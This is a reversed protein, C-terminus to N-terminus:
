GLGLFTTVNTSAFMEVETDSFPSEEFIRLYNPYSEVKALNVTFDTGFLTRERIKDALNQDELTEIYRHLNKYFTPEVGSFSVDAYVNPYREILEIVQLFWPDGTFTREFRVKLPSQNYQRGYHALDVKLTPYHELVPVWRQPETYYQALKPAVGRFGQDDCHTVIPLNNEVCYAYIFKVKEREQEEEPWVDTGLPPYFKIGRFPGRPFLYKEFLDVIFALPHVAPNVGLLPYFELFSDRNAEEYREIGRVTDNLYSIIKIEREKTYYALNDEGKLDRSFDMVLPVLGYKDYQQNRFHFKGDRFYSETPYTLNTPVKGKVSKERERYKGKLDDDILTFIEEISLEFLSFMNMLTILGQQTRNVPTLLYGPSLAGSTVFDGLNDVISDVFSIFNPHRLNMAHMHADFFIKAM